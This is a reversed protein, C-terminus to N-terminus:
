QLEARNELRVFGLIDLFYCSSGDRRRVNAVHAFEPNPNVGGSLPNRWNKLM